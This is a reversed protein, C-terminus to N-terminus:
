TERRKKNKKKVYVNFTSDPSKWANHRDKVYKM